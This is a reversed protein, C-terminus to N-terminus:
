HKDNTKDGKSLDREAEKVILKALPIDITFTTAGSVVTDVRGATVISFIRMTGLSSSKVLINSDVASGEKEICLVECGEDVLANVVDNATRDPFTFTVVGVESPDLGKVAKDMYSKMKSKVNAIKVPEYRPEAYGMNNVVEGTKTSEALQKIAWLVPPSIKLLRLDQTVEKLRSDPKNKAKYPTLYVGEIALYPFNNAMILYYRNVGRKELLIYPDKLV